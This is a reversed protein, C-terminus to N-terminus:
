KSQLFAALEPYGGGNVAKFGKAKLTKNAMAARGGSRCYTVITRDRPLKDLYSELQQLPYNVAGHIMGKETEEPTRVDVLLAGKKLLKDVAEPSQKGLLVTAIKDKIKDLFM